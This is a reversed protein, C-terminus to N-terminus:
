CAAYVVKGYFLLCNTPSLSQALSMFSLKLRIKRATGTGPAACTEALDAKEFRNGIGSSVRKTTEDALKKHM